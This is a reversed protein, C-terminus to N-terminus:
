VMKSLANNATSTKLIRDFLESRQALGQETDKWESQAIINPLVDLSWVTPSLPDNKLDYTAGDDRLIRQARKQLDELNGNELKELHTFLPQWHLRTQKIDDYAEDYAKKSAQYPGILPPNEGAGAFDSVFQSMSNKSSGQSNNGLIYWESFVVLQTSNIRNLKRSSRM